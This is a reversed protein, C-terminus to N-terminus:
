ASRKHPIPRQYLVRGDRPAQGLVTAVQGQHVALLEPRSVIVDVVPETRGITRYLGLVAHQATTYTELEILLDLDSWPQAQGRARSGFLLIRVPRWEAGIRRIIEALVADVPGTLLPRADDRLAEFLALANPIEPGAASGLPDTPLAADWDYDLLGPADQDVMEGPTVGPLLQGDAMTATAIPRDIADSHM